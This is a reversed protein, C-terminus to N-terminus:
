FQMSLVANIGVGDHLKEGMLGVWIPGIIRRDVEGGYTVPGLNFGNNFSIGGTDIGAFAAIRWNPQSQTITEKLNLTSTDTKEAEKTVDKDKAVVTQNQAQQTQQTDKSNDVHTKTETTTTTVTEGDTKKDTTTTTTTDTDKVAAQNTDQKTSTDQQATTTTDDKRTTDTQVQSTTQKQEDIKINPASNFKGFAFGVLFVLALVLLAYGKAKPSSISVNTKSDLLSLLQTPNM